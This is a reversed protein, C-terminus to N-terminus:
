CVLRAMSRASFFQEIETNLFSGAKVTYLDDQAFCRTPGWHQLDRRTFRHGDRVVTDPRLDLYHYKGQGPRLFRRQYWEPVYHNHRFQNKM